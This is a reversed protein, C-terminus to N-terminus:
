AEDTWAVIELPTRAAGQQGVNEGLASAMIRVITDSGSGPSFPVVFRIPRSPCSQALAAAASSLFPVLVL